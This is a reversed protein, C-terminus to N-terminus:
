LVMLVLLGVMWPLHSVASTTEAAKTSTLTNTVANTAANAKTTTVPGSYNVPMPWGYTVNANTSNMGVAGIGFWQQIYTANASGVANAVPTYDEYSFQWCSYDKVQFTYTVNGAPVYTYWQWFNVIPAENPPSLQKYWCGVNSYYHTNCFKRSDGCNTDFKEAAALLM